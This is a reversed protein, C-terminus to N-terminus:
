YMLIQLVGAKQKTKRYQTSKILSEHETVKENDTILYNISCTHYAIKQKRYSDLHLIFKFFFMQPKIFAWCFM